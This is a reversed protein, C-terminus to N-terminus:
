QAASVHQRNIGADTIDGAVCEVALGVPTKGRAVAFDAPCELCAQLRIGQPEDADERFDPLWPRASTSDRGGLIRWTHAVRPPEGSGGRNPSRLAGLARIPVPPEPSGGWM